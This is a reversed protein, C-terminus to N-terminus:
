QRAPPEGAAAFARWLQIMYDALAQRARPTLDDVRGVEGTLEWVSLSRDIGVVGSWFEWSCGKPMIPSLDEDPGLKVVEPRDQKCTAM